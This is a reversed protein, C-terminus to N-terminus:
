KNIYRFVDNLKILTVSKFMSDAERQELLRRKDSGSIFNSRQVSEIFGIQASLNFCFLLLFFELLRKM